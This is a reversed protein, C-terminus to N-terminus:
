LLEEQLSKHRSYLEQLMIKINKIANAKEIETYTDDTVIHEIRKNLKDIDQCVSNIQERISDQEIKMQMAKSIFIIATVITNVIPVFVFLVYTVKEPISLGVKVENRFAYANVGISLIYILMLLSTVM